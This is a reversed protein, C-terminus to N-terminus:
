LLKSLAEILAQQALSYEFRTVFFSEDSNSEDAGRAHCRTYAGTEAQCIPLLSSSLDPTSCTAASPSPAMCSRDHATM